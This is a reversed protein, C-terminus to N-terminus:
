GRKPEPLLTTLGPFDGGCEREDRRGDAAEQRPEARAALLTKLGGVLAGPVGRDLRGGRDLGGQLQAALV